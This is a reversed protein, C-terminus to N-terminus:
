NQLQTLLSQPLETIKLSKSKKDFFVSVNLLENSFSISLDKNKGNYRTLSRLAAKEVSMENSLNYPDSQSIELFSGKNQPQFSADLAASINELLIVEDNALWETCREFVFQKINTSAVDNFNNSDVM